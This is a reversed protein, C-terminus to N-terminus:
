IYGNMFFTYFLCAFTFKRNVHLVIYQIYEFTYIRDRHIIINVKM